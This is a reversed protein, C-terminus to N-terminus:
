RWLSRLASTVRSWSSREAPPAADHGAAAQDSPAALLDGRPVTQPQGPPGAAQSSIRAFQEASLQTMTLDHADAEPAAVASQRGGRDHPRHGAQALTQTLEQQLLSDQPAAEAAARMLHVSVALHFPSEGQRLRYSRSLLRLAQPVIPDAAALPQLRHRAWDLYIDAAGLGSLQRVNYTKLAPTSHSRVMRAIANGDVKGYRGVFDEAERLATLAEALHDAAVTSRRRADLAAACLELAEISLATSTLCARSSLRTSAQDVKRSARQRLMIISYGPEITQAGSPGPRHPAPATVQPPGTEAFQRNGVDDALSASAGSLSCFLVAVGCQQWRRSIAEAPRSMSLETTRRKSRDGVARGQPARTWVNFHSLSRRM